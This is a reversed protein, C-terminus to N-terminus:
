RTEYYLTVSVRIDTTGTEITASRSEPGGGSGLGVNSVMKDASYMMPGPVYGGVNETVNIVRYLKIGSLSALTEAKQKADNIAEERAKNKLEEEKDEDVTLSVNGVMNAGSSTSEDLIQNLNDLNRVRVELNINVNYGIIRNVGSQYDYNPYLNYSTTKIDKSDVGKSKLSESLKAIKKNAAEQTTKADKGNEQVGLNLIATDPVVTVKGEGISTFFNQKQTVVQSLSIPPALYILAYVAVSFISASIITKAIQNKDM